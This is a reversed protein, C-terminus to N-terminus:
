LLSRYIRQCVHVAVKSHLVPTIGVLLELADEAMLAPHRGAGCHLDRCQLRPKELLLLAAEDGHTRAGDFISILMCAYIHTHARTYM